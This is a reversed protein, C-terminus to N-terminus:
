CTYCRKTKILHNQTIFKIINVNKLTLIYLFVLVKSVKYKNKRCSHEVIWRLLTEIPDYKAAFDDTM